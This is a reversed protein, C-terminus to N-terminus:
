LVNELVATKVRRNEKPGRGVRGPGGREVGEWLLHNSEQKVLYFPADMVFERM